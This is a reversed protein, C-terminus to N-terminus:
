WNKFVANKHFRRCYETVWIHIFLRASYNVEKLLTFVVVFSIKKRVHNGVLEFTLM